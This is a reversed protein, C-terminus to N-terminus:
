GSVKSGWREEIRFLKWIAYSILWSLIFLSVLAYGLWGFDLQQVWLWLGGQLHLKASLVQALEIMGILLAAAVSVVTVTLNYYMKRLPTSFAWNYASKMFVGDATDMASMGAAFLIPLALIGLFPITSKAAGASLALLAVESATDFGLGFLFGLPYVHWSKNIFKFLPGAFRVMFGRSVLLKEVEDKDYSDKRMNMFIKFLGILIVLNMLGIILLFCGSVTIGIIGGVEQMQPLEKKAWHVSIGLIVAMLFVVSSHGLSFYFGVGVPDKGQQLLKRVTNDIAAIHDADFAHRLGLTYAVFGMGLLIPHDKAGIFLFLIGIVHLVVVIAGYRVWTHKKLSEKLM